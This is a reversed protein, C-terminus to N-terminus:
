PLDNEDLETTLWFIQTELKPYTTPKWMKKTKKEIKPNKPKKQDPKLRQEHSDHKRRKWTKKV